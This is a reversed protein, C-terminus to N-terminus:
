LINFARMLYDAVKQALKGRFAVPFGVVPRKPMFKTGMQHYISYDVTTGIKVFLNGIDLVRFSDRLAGTRVLTPLGGFGLRAKQMLTSPKLAAWSEGIRAGNESFDEKFENAFDEGVENWVPRLDKGRRILEAMDARLKADDVTIRMSYM